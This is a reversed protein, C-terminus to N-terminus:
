GDTELNQQQSYFWRRFEEYAGHRIATRLGEMLHTYYFLNHLTNLRYSLIERAMYLHRLYARSYNRCTYCPCEEDVPNEDEKYCANKIVINGRRTFLMGNRANRTPLVCDFMDVGQGVCEVIEAPTGVGMLYRPSDEPLLPISYEAMELMLATSEGVSLGGLAYGDFGIHRLEHASQERLDRFMGGQVIGFLAQANGQVTDRCQKGWLTTRQAAAAAATYSSPYPICEDFCMIIDAGLAQQIEIASQPTLSHTSGDIHSQFVVGEDTIKRLASLSYIQFGGSDTLIPQQWHMFRHLGGLRKILEHGPRLYLHYTNCLLIEAGIHGSLEEPILAKVTAQTGVPMFVPTQIEGHSTTIKGLRRCSNEEKHIIDFRFGM